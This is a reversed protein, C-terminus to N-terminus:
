QATSKRSPKGNQARRKARQTRSSGGAPPERVHEVGQEIREIGHALLANVLRTMPIHLGKALRYLQPILEERIKPSYM